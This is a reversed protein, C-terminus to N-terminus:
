DSQSFWWYKPRDISPTSHWIRQSHHIQWTRPWIPCPCSIQFIWFLLSTLESSCLSFIFISIKDCFFKLFMFIKMNFRSFTFFIITFLFEIKIFIIFAPCLLLWWIISSGIKLILLLKLDIFMEVNKIEIWMLQRFWLKRNYNTKKRIKKINPFIILIWKKTM